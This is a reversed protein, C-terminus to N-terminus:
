RTRYSPLYGSRSMKKSNSLQPGRRHWGTFLSNIYNGGLEIKHADLRSRAPGQQEEANRTSKAGRRSTGSWLRHLRRRRAANFAELWKDVGKSVPKVPPTNNQIAKLVPSADSDEWRTSNRSRVHAEEFLKEVGRAAPAEQWASHSGDMTLLMQPDRRM